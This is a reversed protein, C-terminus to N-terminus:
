TTTYYRMLRKPITLIIVRGNQNIKDRYLRSAIQTCTLASFLAIDSNCHFRDLAAM